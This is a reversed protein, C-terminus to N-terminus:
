EQLIEPRRSGSGTTSILILCETVSEHTKPSSVMLDDEREPESNCALLNKRCVECQDRESFCQERSVDVEMLYSTVAEM